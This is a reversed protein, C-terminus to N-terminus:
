AQLKQQEQRALTAHMEMMKKGMEFERVSEIMAAMERVPEINAGELYGNVVRVEDAPRSPTEETQVFYNATLRTLDKPEDVTLLSLRGVERQVNDNGRVLITGEEQVEVRQLSDEPRFQLAGSTGQVTYGEQTVLNGDANLLFNGNRTLLNHGDPTTVHFFGSGILAMDMARGTERTEGQQFDTAEHLGSGAKANEMEENFSAEVLHRGKFGPLNVGALNASILEQRWVQDMMGATISYITSNM